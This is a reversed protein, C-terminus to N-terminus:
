KDTRLDEEIFATQEEESLQEPADVRKDDKLNQQIKQSDVQEAAKKIDSNTDSNDPTTDHNSM